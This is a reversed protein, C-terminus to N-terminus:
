NKILISDYFRDSKKLVSVKNCSVFYKIRESIIFDNDCFLHASMFDLIFESVKFPESTMFGYIIPDYFDESVSVLQGNVIVRLLTNENVLQEWKKCLSIKQEYSLIREHYYKSIDGPCIKQWSILPGYQTRKSYPPLDIISIPNKKDRCKYLVYLFDCLAGPSNTCWIRIPLGTKLDNLFFQYDELYQLWYSDLNDENEKKQNSTWQDTYFIKRIVEKRCASTTSFSINGFNLGSSLSLTKTFCYNNIHSRCLFGQNKSQEVIGKEHNGFLIDMCDRLIEIILLQGLLM